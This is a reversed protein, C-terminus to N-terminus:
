SQHIFISKVSKEWWSYCLKKKFNLKAWNQKQDLLSIYLLKKFISSKDYTPDDDWNNLQFWRGAQGAIAGTERMKVSFATWDAISVKGKHFCHYFNLNCM